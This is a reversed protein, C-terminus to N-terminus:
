NPPVGLLRNAVDSVYSTTAGLGNSLDNPDVSGSNYARCASYVDGYQKVLQVLGDGFSTGETGDKIMQLISGQPDSESFEVGNHSQMLGPNRIGGPSTTTAVHVNGQSEQMIVALIVRKDIGSETAVSLISDHIFQIKSDTDSVKMTPINQQWMLSFKMWKGRDPFNSAPGSYSIVPGGGVTGPDDDDGPITSEAPINLKDGVKILQPNLNVLAELSINVRQAIGFLTDGSVVTYQTTASPPQDNSPINLVQGIEINDSGNLKPNAARLQDLTVGFKQAIAFITDGAVVVYTKTTTFVHQHTAM